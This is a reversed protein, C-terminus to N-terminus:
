RCPIRPALTEGSLLYRQTAIGNSDVAESRYEPVDTVRLKNLSTRKSESSISHYLIRYQKVNWKLCGAFPDHHKLL